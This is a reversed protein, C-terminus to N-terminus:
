KEEEKPLWYICHKYNRAGDKPLNDWADEPMSKHLKDFFKLLSEAAM